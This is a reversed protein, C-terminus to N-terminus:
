VRSTTREGSRSAARGVRRVGRASRSPSPPRGRAPQGLDELEDRRPGALQREVDGLVAGGIGSSWPRGSGRGPAPPTGEGADRRRARRWRGPRAAAPSSRRTGARCSRTPARAVGLAEPDDVDVELGLLPPDAVAAPEHGLHRAGPHQDVLSGAIARGRRRSWSPSRVCRPTSRVIRFPLVIAVRDREISGPSRTAVPRGSRDGGAAISRRAAGAAM